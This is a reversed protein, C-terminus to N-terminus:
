ISVSINIHNEFTKGVVVIAIIKRFVPLLIVPRLTEVHVRPKNSKPLPMLHGSEIEEPYEGTETVHNISMRLM